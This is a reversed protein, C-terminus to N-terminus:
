VTISPASLLCFDSNSTKNSPIIFLNRTYSNQPFFFLQFLINSHIQAKDISDRGVIPYVNKSVSYDRLMLEEKKKKGEREGENNKMIELPSCGYKSSNM